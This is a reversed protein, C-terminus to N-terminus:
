WQSKQRHRGFAGRSMEERKIGYGQTGSLRQIFRLRMLNILSSMEAGHSAGDRATFYKFGLRTKQQSKTILTRKEKAETHIIM